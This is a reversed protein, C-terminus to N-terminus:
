MNQPPPFCLSQGKIALHIQEGFKFFPNVKARKLEDPVKKKVLQPGIDNIYSRKHQASSKAVSIIALM